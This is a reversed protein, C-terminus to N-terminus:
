NLNDSDYKNIFDKLIAKILKGYSDIGESQAIRRIDEYQDTSIKISKYKPKEKKKAKLESLFPVEKTTERPTSRYNYSAPQEERIPKIVDEISVNVKGEDPKITANLLKIRDEITTTKKSM